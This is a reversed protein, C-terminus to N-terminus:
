VKVTRTLSASWGVGPVAVLANAKVITSSVGTSVLRLGAPALAPPGPKARVTLPDLKTKPEVMLHFPEFRVVVKTLAECNVAEIGALSMAVGPVAVILTALGPPLVDFVKGRVIEGLVSAM